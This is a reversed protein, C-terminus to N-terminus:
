EDTSGKPLPGPLDQKLVSKARALHDVLATRITETATAVSSTDRPWPIAGITVPPGYSIDIRSGKVPRADVPEGPPRTGFVAVPVVPAGTVLALYAVGPEIHELEGAGREGEPYMAVVQGARLARVARRVAGADIEHRRVSIQGALRLLRGTAGRFMESKVLAHAPRPSGAIMLPGDLWGIHNSALIVPGDGPVHEEGSQHVDWRRLYLGRVLPRLLRLGTEGLGDVPRSALAAAKM